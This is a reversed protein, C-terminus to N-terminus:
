TIFAIIVYLFGLWFGSQLFMPIMGSRVGYEVVVARAFRGEPSSASCGVGRSTMAAMGSSSIQSAPRLLSWGAPGVAPVHGMKDFGEADAGELLEALDRVLVYDGPPPVHGLDLAEM